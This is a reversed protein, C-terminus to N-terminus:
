LHSIWFHIEFTIIKQKYAPPTYFFLKFFRLYRLCRLYRIYDTWVLRQDWRTQPSLLIVLERPIQGRRVTNPPLLLTWELHICIRLFSGALTRRGLPLTLLIEAFCLWQNEWKSGRTKVPVYCILYISSYDEYAKHSDHYFM